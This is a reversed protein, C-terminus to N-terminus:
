CDNNLSGFLYGILFYRLDNKPCPQAPPEPRIPYLPNNHKECPCNCYNNFFPPECFNSCPRNNICNNCNCLTESQNFYPKFNYNTKHNKNYRM